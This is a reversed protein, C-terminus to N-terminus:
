NEIPSSSQYKLLVFCLAASILGVLTTSVFAPFYSGTSDFIWGSFPAGVAGGTVNLFFLVGSISGLSELGFLDAAVITWLPIALGYSVGLLLAFMYLLPLTDAFVLFALALTIMTLSVSLARVSGIKDSIFGSLFKSPVSSTAILSLLIAATSPQIGLDIANPVIHTMITQLCFGFGFNIVGFLWFKRSRFAEDFTYGRAQDSSANVEPSGNEGYPALGIQAPSKRIFQALPVTLALPILGIIVFSMRWDVTSILKQIILPAVIAGLGFGAAPISIALGRKSIFWRPITTTIPIVTGSLGVGLSIGWILYVQWISDIRSMLLLGIGMFIGAATIFIRPGYKDSLRGAVIAFTGNILMGISVAGSIAGRRWGFEKTLPTLFIGFGYIPFANVSFILAGFAVILWGYFFKKM